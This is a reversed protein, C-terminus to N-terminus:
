CGDTGPAPRPATQRRLESAFVYPARSAKSEYMAMDASRLLAGVSDGDEPYCAVGIAAPAMVEVGDILHPRNLELDTKELVVVLGERADVREIVMAFEDGGLRAVTDTSRLLGTLREAVGCLVRDGAQHGHGDNIAKFGNVDLVIVAASTGARRARRMANELQESLTRRNPLMTLADHGALYEYKRHELQLAHRLRENMVEYIVVILTIAVSAVILNLLVNTDHTQKPLQGPLQVGATELAYFGAWTLGSMAMWFLGSGWGSFLGAIVPLVLYFAISPAQLGGQLGVAGLLTVYVSVITVNAALALSGSLRLLLVGAVLGSSAAALLSITVRTDMGPMSLEGISVYAVMAIVVLFALNVGVLIRARLTRDDAPEFGAPVFFDIIRTARAALLGARGEAGKPEHRPHDEAASRDAEIAGGDKRDHHM